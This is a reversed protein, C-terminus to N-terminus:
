PKHQHYGGAAPAQDNDGVIMLAALTAPGSAGGIKNISPGWRTNGGQPEDLDKPDVIQCDPMDPLTLLATFLAKDYHGECLILFEKEIAFPM